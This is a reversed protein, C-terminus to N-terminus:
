LIDRIKCLISGLENQGKWSTPQNINPDQLKLGCSFFKDKPNAEVLNGNTQKLKEALQPNQNFKLACAKYMTQVAVPEWLEDM